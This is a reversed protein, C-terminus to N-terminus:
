WLLGDHLGLGAVADAAACSDASFSFMCLDSTLLVWWKVGSWSNQAASFVYACCYDSSGPDPDSKIGTSCLYM